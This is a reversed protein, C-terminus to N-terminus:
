EDDGGARRVVSGVVWTRGHEAGEQCVWLRVPEGEVTALSGSEPGWIWERAAAGGGTRPTGPRGPLLAVAVSPADAAGAAIVEVLAVLGDADAELRAVARAVGGELLAVEPESLDLALAWRRAADLGDPGAWPRWGAAELAALADRRPRRLLAALPPLPLTM